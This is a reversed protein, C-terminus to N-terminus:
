GGIAWMPRDPVLFDPDNIGHGPQKATVCALMNRKLAEDDAGSRLQGRLDSEDRAFLCSRLQGDATLRLRDCSACFPRTVSAIVGVSAPGGDVLWREAPANGRQDAPTLTFACALRDLIEGATVLDEKTANQASAFPMQEIFRLQLGESLAWRLLDVAEDENTGRLMVTNIKIPHLGAAKAAAVGALVAPLQDRGTMAAFREPRLTDLSINLRSLGAGALAVALRPLRLANTTMALRPAAPLARLAAVVEVVDPRLLPEGGTLRIREIGLDVLLGVLRVLETTTLLDARPLWDPNALPLCYRCRLSCRDTLSLRLDRHVRGHGDVLSVRLQGM